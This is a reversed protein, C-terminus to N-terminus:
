SESRSLVDSRGNLWVDIRDGDVWDFLADVREPSLLMLRQAHIGQEACWEMFETIELNDGTLLVHVVNTVAGRM